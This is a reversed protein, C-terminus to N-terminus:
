AGKLRGVGRIMFRVFDSAGSARWRIFRLLPVSSDPLILTAVFTGNYVVSGFSGAVYWGDTTGLSSGTLIDITASSSGQFAATLILSLEDFQSVDVANFLLQEGGAAGVKVEWQTLDFSANAGHM